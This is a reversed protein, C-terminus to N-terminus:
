EVTKASACKPDRGETLPQPNRKRQRREHVEATWQATHCQGCNRRDGYHECRQEPPTLAVAAALRDAVHGEPVGHKQMHELRARASALDAEFYLTWAAIAESTSPM